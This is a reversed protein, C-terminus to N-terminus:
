KGVILNVALLICSVAVGGLIINIRTSFGNMRDSMDKMERWQEAETKELNSIRAVCGTHEICITLDGNVM